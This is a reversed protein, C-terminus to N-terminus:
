LSNDQYKIIANIVDRTSFVECKENDAFFVEELTIELFDCIRLIQKLTYKHPQKCSDINGMQGPSIDLLKSFALQSFGKSERILKIRNIVQQQYDTKM